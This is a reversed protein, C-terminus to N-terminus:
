WGLERKMYAVVAKAGELQTELEAVYAEMEPLSRNRKIANASISIVRVNSMVYGLAPDLRDLSPSVGSQKGNKGIEFRVGLVPCIEPVVIERWDLDFPIGTKQSRNKAAAVMRRSPQKRHNELQKLRSYEPHEAFWRRQYEAREAKQEATLRLRYRQSIQRAWEPNAARKEAAWQRNAERKWDSHAENYTKTAARYKEPNRWYDQKAPMEADGLM